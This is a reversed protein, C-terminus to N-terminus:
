PFLNQFCGPYFNTLNWRMWYTACHYCMDTMGAALSAQPLLIVAQLWGPCFIGSGLQFIVSLLFPSPPTALITSNTGAYCANPRSRLIWTHPPSSLSFSLSLLSDPAPAECRYDQSSPSQSRFSPPKPSGWVFLTQSGMELFLWLFIQQLHSELLLADAKFTHLVSNL